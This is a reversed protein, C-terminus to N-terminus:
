DVEINGISKGLASLFELEEKEANYSDFIEFYKYIREKKVEMRIPPM